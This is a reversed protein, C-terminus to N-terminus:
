AMRRTLWSKSPFDVSILCRQLADRMHSQLRVISKLVYYILQQLIFYCFHMGERLNTAWERNLEFIHCVNKLFGECGFLVLNVQGLSLSVSCLAGRM